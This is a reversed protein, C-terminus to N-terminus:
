RPIWGAVTRTNRSRPAITAFNDSKPRDDRSTKAVGEIKSASALSQRACLGTAPLCLCGRRPMALDDGFRLVFVPLDVGDGDRRLDGPDLPPSRMDDFRRPIKEISFRLVLMSTKNLRRRLTLCSLRFLRRHAVGVFRTRVRAPREMFGPWRRPERAALVVDSYVLDLAGCGDMCWCDGELGSSEAASDSGVKGNCCCLYPLRGRVPRSLPSDDGM